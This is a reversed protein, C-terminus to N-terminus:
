AQVPTGDAYKVCFTTHRNDKWKGTTEGARAKKVVDELGHLAINALLTFSCKRCLQWCGPLTSSSCEVFVVAVPITIPKQPAM